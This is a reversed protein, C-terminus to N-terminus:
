GKAGATRGPLKATTFIVLIVFIAIGDVALDRLSFSRYPLFIQIVEVLCGVFFSAAAAKIWWAKPEGARVYGISLLITLVAFAAFHFIIDSLLIKLILSKRQLRHLSHTPVASAILILSMFVYAPVFPKLSKPKSM